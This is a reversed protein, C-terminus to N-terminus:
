SIPAVWERLCELTDFVWERTVKPRTQELTYIQSRMPKGCHDCTVTPIDAPPDNLREHVTLM